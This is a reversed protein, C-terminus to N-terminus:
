TDSDNQYNGITEVVKAAQERLQSLYSLMRERDGSYLRGGSNLHKAIQNVDVGLKYIQYNLDKLLVQIEPFTRPNQYILMRLFANETMNYEKARQGLVYAETENLRLIKSINRTRHEKGM